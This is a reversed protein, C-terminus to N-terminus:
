VRGRVRVGGAPVFVGAFVCLCSRVMVVSLAGRVGDNGSARRGGPFREYSIFGM